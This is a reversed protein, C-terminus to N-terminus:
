KKGSRRGQPFSFSAIGRLEERHTMMLLGFTIISFVQLPLQLWDFSKAAFFSFVVVALAAMVYALSPYRFLLYGVLACGCFVLTLPPHIAFLVGFTVHFGKGGRYGAFFPFIHGLIAALGFSMTLLPYEWESFLGYKNHIMLALSAALMGKSIDLLRVLLGAKNGLVQHVNSHSANGLGHDRIDIGYVLSSLWVSTPISGILYALITCFLIELYDM